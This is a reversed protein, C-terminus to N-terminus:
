EDKKLVYGIGVVTHIVRDLNSFEIKKRLYNVYVDVVNTSLEFDIGWVKNLLQQRTLVRNKNHILCCLLRYETNTLNIKEGGRKVSKLHDDVVIDHFSLIHNGKIPNEIAVVRRTVASIRALLEEFKFPKVLYDDAGSQLGSIINETTGLATLMIIPIQVAQERVARLLDIGNIHPLMIDLIAVDYNHKTLMQFGSQGDLAVSVAHGHEELGQKLFSVVQVEDEVLLIKM